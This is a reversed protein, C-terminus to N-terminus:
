LMEGLADTSFKDSLHAIKKRVGYLARYNYVVTYHEFWMAIHSLTLKIM